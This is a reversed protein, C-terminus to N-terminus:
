RQVKTYLTGESIEISERLHSIDDEHVIMLHLVTGLPYGGAEVFRRYQQEFRFARWTDDSKNQVFIM